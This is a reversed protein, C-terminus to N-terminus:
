IVEVRLQAFSRSRGEYTRDLTKYPQKDLECVILKHFPDAGMVIQM